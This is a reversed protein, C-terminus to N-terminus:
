CEIRRNRVATSADQRQFYARRELRVSPNRRRLPLSPPHNGRFNKGVRAFQSNPRDSPILARQSARCARAEAEPSIQLGGGSCCSRSDADVADLIQPSCISSRTCRTSRWVPKFIKTEHHAPKKITVHLTFNLQRKSNQGVKIKTVTYSIDGFSERWAPAASLWNKSSSANSGATSTCTRLLWPETGLPAPVHIATKSSIKTPVTPPPWRSYTAIASARCKKALRALATSSAFRRKASPGANPWHQPPTMCKCKSITVAFSAAARATRNAGFSVGTANNPPPWTPLASTFTRDASGTLTRQISLRSPM